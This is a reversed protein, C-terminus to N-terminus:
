YINHSKILEVYKRFYDKNYGYVNRYYEIVQQLTKDSACAQPAQEAVNLPWDCYLVDSTSVTVSRIGHMNPSWPLITVKSDTNAIIYGHQVTNDVVFSGFMGSEIAKPVYQSALAAHLKYGSATVINPSHSAFVAELEESTQQAKVLKGDREHWVSQQGDMFMNRSLSTMRAKASDTADVITIRSALQIGVHSVYPGKDLYRGTGRIAVTDTANALAEITANPKTNSDVTIAAHVRNGVVTYADVTIDNKKM